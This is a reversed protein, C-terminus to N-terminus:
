VSGGSEANGETNKAIRELERLHRLEKVMNAIQSQYKIIQDNQKVVPNEQTRGRTLTRSVVAQLDAVDGGVKKKSENAIKQQEDALKNRTTQLEIEKQLAAAQAITTERVGDWRAKVLQAADANERTALLKQKLSKILNEEASQVRKAEAEQEAALKAAQQKAALRADAERKNAAMAEAEANAADINAFHEQRAKEALREKLQIEDRLADQTERRAKIQERLEELRKQEAEVEDRRLYRFGFIEGRGQTSDDGTIAKRLRDKTDALDQERSKTGQVFKDLEAKMKDLREADSASFLEIEKMRESFFKKDSAILEANLEKARDRAAALREEFQNAGTVMKGFNFGGEFASKMLQISGQIEGITTQFTTFGPVTLPTKGMSELSRKMNGVQTSVGGFVKAANNKAGILISVDDQPM